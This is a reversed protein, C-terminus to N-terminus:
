GSSAAVEDMVDLADDANRRRWAGLVAVLIALGIIEWWKRTYANVPWKGGALNSLGVMVLLVPPLMANLVNAVGAKGVSHMARAWWYAGMLLVLGYAVLLVVYVDRQIAAGSVLLALGVTSGALISASACDRGWKVQSRVKRRLASGDIRDEVPKAVIAM